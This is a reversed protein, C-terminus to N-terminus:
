NTLAGVNQKRRNGALSNAHRNFDTVEHEQNSDLNPEYGFRGIPLASARLPQLVVSHERRLVQTANTVLEEQHHIRTAAQEGM